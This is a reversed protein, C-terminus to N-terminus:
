CNQCADEERIWTELQENDLGPGQTIVSSACYRVSELQNCLKYRYALNTVLKRFEAERPVRKVGSSDFAVRAWKNDENRIDGGLLLAREEKTNEVDM